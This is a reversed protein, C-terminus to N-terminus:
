KPDGDVKERVKARGKELEKTVAADAKRFGRKADDTLEKTAPANKVKDVGRKVDQELHEANRNAKEKAGPSCATMLLVFTFFTTKM